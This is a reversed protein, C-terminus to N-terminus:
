GGLPLLLVGALLTTLLRPSPARFRRPAPEVAQAPAATLPEDAPQEAIEEYEIEVSTVETVELANRTEVEGIFRYGTKPFTKILRPQQSTEGLAKRIEVISQM